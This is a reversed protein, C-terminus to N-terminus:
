INGTLEIRGAVMIFHVVPSRPTDKETETQLTLDDIFAIEPRSELYKLYTYLELFGAAGAISVPFLKFGEHSRSELNDTRQISKDMIIPASPELTLIIKNFRKPDGSIQWNEKLNKKQLEGIAIEERLTNINAQLRTQLDAQTGEALGPYTQSLQEKAQNMKELKVLKPELLVTHGAYFTMACLCIYLIHTRLLVLSGPDTRILLLIGNIKSTIKKIDM